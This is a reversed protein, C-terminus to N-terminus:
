INDLDLINKIPKRDEVAEDFEQAFSHYLEANEMADTYNNPTSFKENDSNSLVNRATM